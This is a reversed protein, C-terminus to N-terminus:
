VIFRQSSSTTQGYKYSIEQFILYNVSQSTELLKMELMGANIITSGPVPDIDHYEGGPDQVQLGDQFLLTIATLFVELTM